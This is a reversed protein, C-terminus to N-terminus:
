GLPVYQRPGGAGPDGRRRAQPEELWQSGRFSNLWFYGDEYEFWIPNTHISGNPWKTAVIAPFVEQVFQRTNESLEVM